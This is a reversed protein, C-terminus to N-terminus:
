GQLSTATLRDSENPRTKAGSEKHEASQPDLLEDIM